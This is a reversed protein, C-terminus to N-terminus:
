VQSINESYSWHGNDLDFMVMNKKVWHWSVEEVEEGYKERPQETLEMREIKAKGFRSMVTDGLKLTDKMPINYCLRLGTDLSPDM